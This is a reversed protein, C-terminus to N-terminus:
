WRWVYRWLQHRLLMAIYLGISSSRMPFFQKSWPSNAPTAAIAFGKSITPGPVSGQDGTGDPDGFEVPPRTRALASRPSGVASVYSLSAATLILIIFHQVRAKIGARM